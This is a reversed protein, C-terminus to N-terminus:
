QSTIGSGKELDCFETCQSRQLELGIQLVFLGHTPSLMSLLPVGNWEKEASIHCFTHIVCSVSECSLVIRHREHRAHLDFDM